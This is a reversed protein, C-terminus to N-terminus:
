QIAASAGLLLIWAGPFCWIGLELGVAVRRIILLPHLIPSCEDKHLHPQRFGLSPMGFKNRHVDDDKIAERQVRAIQAPGFELREAMTLNM